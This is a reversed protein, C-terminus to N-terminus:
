AGKKPQHDRLWELVTPLEGYACDRIGCSEPIGLAKRCDAWQLGGTQLLRAIEMAENKGILEAADHDGSAPTPKRAPPQEEAAAPKEAPKDALKELGAKAEAFQEVTLHKLSRVKYRRCLSARTFGKRSLLSDLEALQDANLQPGAPQSRDERGAVDDGEAVRNMLLLDRLLYSLSLTDAAATAKDLPRGKDPVVPWRVHLPASEGSSHVLLFTRRLEFRDPGERESGDLTAEVPLLVLEAGALAKRGEEIITDASAYKYGHFKNSDTKEVPHCSAIAKALAGALKGRPAAPLYPRETAPSPAPLKSRAPMAALEADPISLADTTM